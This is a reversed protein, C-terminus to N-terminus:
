NSIYIGSATACASQASVLTYLPAFYTVRTENTQNAALICTGLSATRECIDSSFVGGTSECSSQLIALYGADNYDVGISEVCLNFTTVARRDCTGYPKVAQSLGGSTAIPDGASSFKGCAGSSLAVFLVLILNVKFQKM